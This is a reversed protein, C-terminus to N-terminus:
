PLASQLNLAFGLWTLVPSMLALTVSTVVWLTMFQAASISVTPPDIARQWFAAWIRGSVLLVTAIAMLHQSEVFCYAVASGIRQWVTPDFITFSVAGWDWADEIIPPVTAVLFVLLVTMREHWCPGKFGARTSQSAATTASLRVAIVAGAGAIFVGALWVNWWPQVGLEAALFPSVASAAAAAWRVLCATFVLALITALGIGLRTLRSNHWHRALLGLLICASALFGAALFARQIFQINLASPLTTPDLSQGGWRSPQYLAVGWLSAHMLTALSARHEIVLLLWYASLTLGLATSLYQWTSPNSDHRGPSPNWYALAIALYFLFDILTSTLLSGSRDLDESSFARFYRALGALGAVALLALIAVAALVQFLASRREVNTRPLSYFEGAERCTKQLLGMVLWIVFCALLQDHWESGPFRRNSLAAAVGLTFVMLGRLSFRWRHSPSRSKM